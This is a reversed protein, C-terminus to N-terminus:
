KTSEQLWDHGLISAKSGPGYQIPSTQGDALSEVLKLFNRCACDANWVLAITHYANRALRQRERPNLVLRKVLRYLEDVNGSDYILGNHEHQVLFPVSGILSDAVIACASNMSENVTAGWGENRDSTALFIDSEEMYERVKEPPMAGLLTVDNDLGYKNILIKLRKEMPGRGVMSLKFAINDAKLRRAVEIAREPHKWGIMRCAWLLSVPGGQNGSKSLILQNIDEHTKFETFYGWKFCRSPSMGSLRYDRSAFASSCLLYGRNLFLSNYTYIPYKLYKVISKYRREDDRFTLRGAGLRPKILSLPAEGFIVADAEMIQRDIDAANEPTYGIVYPEDYKSYGLLQQEEPMTRTEVFLLNGNTAKYFADALPKQHHNFFNSLIVVKM